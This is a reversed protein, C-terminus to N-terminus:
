PPVFSSIISTNSNAVSNLILVNSTPNSTKSLSISPRYYSTTMELKLIKVVKRSTVINYFFFGMEHGCDEKPYLAFIGQGSPYGTHHQIVLPSGDTGNAEAHEM